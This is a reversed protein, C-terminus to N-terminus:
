TIGLFKRCHELEEGLAVAWPWQNGIATNPIWCLPCPAAAEGTSLTCRAPLPSNVEMWPSVSWISMTTWLHFNHTVALSNRSEKHPLFQRWFCLIHFQLPPFTPKPLYCYLIIYSHFRLTSFHPARLISLPATRPGMFIKSTVWFTLFNIGRCRVLAKRSYKCEQQLSTQSM